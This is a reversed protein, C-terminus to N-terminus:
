SAKGHGHAASPVAKCMQDYSEYAYTYTLNTLPSNQAHCDFKCLLPLLLLLLIMVSKTTKINAMYDTMITM